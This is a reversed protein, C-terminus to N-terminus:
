DILSAHAIDPKRNFTELEDSSNHLNEKEEPAAQLMQGPKILFLSTVVFCFADSMAFTWMVRAPNGKETFYLLTSFLPPPLLDTLVAMGSAVGAYHLAQMLGAGTQQFGITWSGYFTRPLLQQCWFVFEPDGGWIAGIPGPLTIIILGLISAFLTGIWTAHIWLWFVRNSRKSAFAYSAPSTYGTAFASCIGYLLALLKQNVGWVAIVTEYAGVAAASLNLFKQTLVLPVAYSLNIIYSPLGVKLATWTERSPKQLFMQGTCNLPFRSSNWIWLFLALSMFMDTIGSALSVGWIPLHFVLLFIPDFVVAKFVFSTLMVMGFFVSHGCAM